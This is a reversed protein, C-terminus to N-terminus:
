NMLCGRKGGGGRMRMEGRRDIEIKLGGGNKIVSSRKGGACVCQGNM